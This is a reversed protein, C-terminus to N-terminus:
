VESCPTGCFTRLFGSKSRHRCDPALKPRLQRSCCTPTKGLLPIAGARSFYRVLIGGVNTSCSIMWPAERTEQSLLVSRTVKRGKRRVDLFHKEGYQILDIALLESIKLGTLLLVLFSAFDLLPRQNKDSQYQNARHPACQEGMDRAGHNFTEEPNRRRM